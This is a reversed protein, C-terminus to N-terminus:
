PTSLSTRQPKVDVLTAKTWVPDGVSGHVWIWCCVPSSKLVPVNLSSLAFLNTCVKIFRLSPLLQIGGPRHLPFLFCMEACKNSRIQLEVRLRIKMKMSGAKSEASIIIIIHTHTNRRGTCIGTGARKCECLFM